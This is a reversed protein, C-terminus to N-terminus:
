EGTSDYNFGIPFFTRVRIWLDDGNYLKSPFPIIGGWKGSGSSGATVSQKCSNTGSASINSSVVSKSSGWKSCKVGVNEKDYSQNITWAGANGM